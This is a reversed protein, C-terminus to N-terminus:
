FVFGGFSAPDLDFIKAWLGVWGEALRILYRGSLPRVSGDEVTALLAKITTFRDSAVTPAEDPAAHHEVADVEPQATGLCRCCEKCWAM